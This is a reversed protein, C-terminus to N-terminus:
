HKIVLLEFKRIIFKDNSNTSLSLGESDRSNNFVSVEQFLNSGESRRRRRRERECERRKEERRKEERKM